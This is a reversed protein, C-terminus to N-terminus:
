NKSDNSSHTTQTSGWLNAIAMLDAETFTDLTFLWEDYDDENMLSKMTKIDTNEAQVNMVYALKQFVGLLKVAEASKDDAKTFNIMIQMINQGTLIEYLRTTGLNAEFAMEKGGITINKKMTKVELFLFVGSWLVIIETDPIGM